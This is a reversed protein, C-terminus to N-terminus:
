VFLSRITLCSGNIQSDDLGWIMGAVYLIGDYQRRLAITGVQFVGCSRSLACCMEPDFIKPPIVWWLQGSSRSPKQERCSPVRRGKPGFWSINWCFSRSTKTCRSGSVSRGSLTTLSWTCRRFSCSSPDFSPWMLVRLGRGTRGVNRCALSTRRSYLTYFCILPMSLCEETSISNNLIQMLTVWQM